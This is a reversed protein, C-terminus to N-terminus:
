HSFHTLKLHSNEIYIPIIHRMKVGGLMDGLKTQADKKSVGIGWKEPDLAMEWTKDKDLIEGTLDNKDIGNIRQAPIAGVFIVNPMEQKIRSIVVKLDEYTYNNDLVAQLEAQTGGLKSVEEPASKRSEPVPRWRWFGRFILDTKTQKFLRIVNDNSRGYLAM